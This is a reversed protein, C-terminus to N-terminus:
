SKVTDIKQISYTTDYENRAFSALTTGAGATGRITSVYNIYTGIGSKPSTYTFTKTSPTSTVDYYGNFGESDTAPVNETSAANRILVRDGISLKHPRESTITVVSTQNPVGQVSTIGAIVHPNRNQLLPDIDIHRIRKM